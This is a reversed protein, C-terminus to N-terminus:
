EMVKYLREDYLSGSMPLLQDRFIKMHPATWHGHLAKEDAWAEVLTFHNPRSNQQWVEYRANGADKRSPEALTKLAAIGDDKKPPIIDVHTVAFIAGGTASPPASALTMGGSPPIVMGTHPREDYPASMLPQLKERFQMTHAAASHAEAAKADKWTEIVAFHNPHSTRQLVEFRESGGGKRSADRLQRLLAVSEAAATPAVEIYAVVYAMGEQAFATGTLIPTLAIGLSFVLRRM